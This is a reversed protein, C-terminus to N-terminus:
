FFAQTKELEVDRLCAIAGVIKLPVADRKCAMECYSLDM